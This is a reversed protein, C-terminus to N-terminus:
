TARSRALLRARLAAQGNEKRLKTELDRRTSERSELHAEVDERRNLYLLIASYIEALSVSPYRISIEEATAGDLYAYVIAEFSVRTKGVRLVGDLETLPNHWASGIELIRQAAM